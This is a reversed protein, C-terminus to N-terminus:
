SGSQRLCVRRDPREKTSWVRRYVKDSPKLDEPDLFSAIYLLSGSEEYVEFMGMSESARPGNRFANDTM